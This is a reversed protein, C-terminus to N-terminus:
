HREQPHYPLRRRLARWAQHQRPHSSLMCSKSGRRWRPLRIRHNCLWEQNQQGEDLLMNSVNLVLRRADVRTLESYTFPVTNCVKPLHRCSRVARVSGQAKSLTRVRVRERDKGRKGGNHHHLSFAHFLRGRLPPSTRDHWSPTLNTLTVRSSHGGLMLSACAYWSPCLSVLCSSLDM